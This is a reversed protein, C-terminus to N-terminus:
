YRAQVRVGHLGDVAYNTTAVLSNQIKKGQAVKHIFMGAGAIATGLLVAVGFDKVHKEPTGFIDSEALPPPRTRPQPAPQDHGPWPPQVPLAAATALNLLLLERCFILLSYFLSYPMYKM